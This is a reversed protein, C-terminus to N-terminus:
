RRMYINLCAYTSLDKATEYMFGMHLRIKNHAGNSVSPTCKPMYHVGLAYTTKPRVYNGYINDVLYVCDIESM